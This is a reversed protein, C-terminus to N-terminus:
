GTDATLDSACGAWEHQGNWSVEGPGTAPGPAWGRVVHQGAQCHYPLPPAGIHFTDRVNVWGVAGLALAVVAIIVRM